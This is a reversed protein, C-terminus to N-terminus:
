ARQRRKWVILEEHSIVAGSAIQIEARELKEQWDPRNELKMEAPEQRDLIAARLIETSVASATVQDDPLGRRVEEDVITITLPTLAAAM